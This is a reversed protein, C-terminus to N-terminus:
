FNESDKLRAGTFSVSKLDTTWGPSVLNVALWPPGQLPLKPSRSGAFRFLPISELRRAYSLPFLSVRGRNSAEPCNLQALGLRNGGDLPCSSLGLSLVLSAVLSLLSGPM